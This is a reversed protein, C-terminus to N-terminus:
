IRPNDSYLNITTCLLDLSVPKDLRAVVQQHKRLNGEASCIIVPIDGFKMQYSNEIVELFEDGGMVPMLLDLVVCHPKEHPELKRLLDLASQGNDAQLVTYGEDTLVLSLVERLSRDDEVLLVIIKHPNM